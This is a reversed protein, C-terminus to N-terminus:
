QWVAHDLFEEVAPLVQALVAASASLPGPVFMSHDAGNIGVVHATVSRAVRGNWYPDATGGALLFPGPARELAAVTLEDALLPTFWM